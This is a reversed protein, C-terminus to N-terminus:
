INISNDKGAIFCEYAAVDEDVVLRPNAAYRCRRPLVNQIVPGKVAVNGVFPSEGPLVPM